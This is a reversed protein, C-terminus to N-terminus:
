LRVPAAVCLAAALAFLWPRHAPAAYVLVCVGLTLLVIHPLWDVAEHPQFVTSLSEAFGAQGRLAFQAVLFGCAVPVPWVVKVPSRLRQMAFAIIASVLLPLLSASLISLTPM